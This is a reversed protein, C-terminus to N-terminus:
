GGTAASIRGRMVPSRADAQVDISVGRALKAATVARQTAAGSVEISFTQAPASRVGLRARANADTARPNSRFTLTYSGAELNKIEFNGSADSKLQAAVKGGPKRQVTIDVGVILVGAHVSAAIFFALLVSFIRSTKM